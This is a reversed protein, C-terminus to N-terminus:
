VRGRRGLGREGRRGPGGGGNGVRDRCELERKRRGRGLGGVVGELPKFRFHPARPPPPPPPPLPLAPAAALPAPLLVFSARGARGVPGEMKGNAGLPGGAAAQHLNIPGPAGAGEVGGGRRGGGGPRGEGPWAEGGAAWVGSSATLRAPPAAPARGPDAPLPRVRCGARSRLCRLSLEPSASDPVRPPLRPFPRIVVGVGLLSDAGLERGPLRPLALSHPSRGLSFTDLGEHTQPPPHLLPHGGWDPDSLCTSELCSSKSGSLPSPQPGPSRPGRPPLPAQSASPTPLRSEPPRPQSSPVPPPPSPQSAGSQNRNVPQGRPRFLSDRGM